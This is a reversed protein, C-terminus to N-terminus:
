QKRALRVIVAEIMEQAEKVMEPTVERYDIQMNDAIFHKLQINNGPLDDITQIQDGMAAIDTIPEVTEPPTIIDEPFMSPQGAQTRVENIIAAKENLTEELFAEVARVESGGYEPIMEQILAIDAESLIEGAGTSELCDKLTGM